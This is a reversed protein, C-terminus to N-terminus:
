GTRRDRARQIFRSELEASLYFGTAKLEAIADEFEILGRVSARELLGLTGILPLNSKMAVRRGKIEDILLLDAGLEEALLITEREGNDLRDLEADFVFEPTLVTLWNPRADIFVKVIEPATETRLEAYVAQPIVVSGLMEPLIFIVGARLLHNIPTADSVVIM